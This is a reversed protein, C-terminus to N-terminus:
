QLPHKEENTGENTEENKDVNKEDESTWTVTTLTPNINASESMPSLESPQDGNVGNAGNSKVITPHKSADEDTVPFDDNDMVPKFRRNFGVNYFSPPLKRKYHLAFLISIGALLLILCVAIIIYLM